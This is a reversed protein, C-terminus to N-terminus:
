GPCQLFPQLLSFDIKLVIYWYYSFRLLLFFDTMFRKSVFRGYINM